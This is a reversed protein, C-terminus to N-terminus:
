ATAPPSRSATTSRDWRPKARKAADSSLRAAVIRDADPAMAWILLLSGRHAIEQPNGHRERLERTADIEFGADVRKRRGGTGPRTAASVIDEWRPLARLLRPASM